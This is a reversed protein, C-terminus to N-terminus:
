LTIEGFPQKMRLRVGEPNYTSPTLRLCDMCDNQKDFIYEEVEKILRKNKIFYWSDNYKYEKLIRQVDREFSLVVQHDHLWVWVVVELIRPNGQRLVGKRYDIDHTSGIRYFSTGKEKLVYVYEKKRRM